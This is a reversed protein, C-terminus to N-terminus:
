DNAFEGLITCPASDIDEIRLPSVFVQKLRHTAKSLDMDEIIVIPDGEGKPNLFARHAERGEARNLYSSLSIWDLGIARVKPHKARLFHGVSPHIGPNAAFYKKEDRVKSWDSKLLLLDTHKGIRGRIADIDMLEGPKLKVKIVQPSRFRWFNAAIQAVKLGRKFFHAPCDVHTGHHNSLTVTFTECSDGQDISKGKMIAFHGEAGYRPTDTTLPYSLFRMM